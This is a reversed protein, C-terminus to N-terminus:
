VLAKVATVVVVSDAYESDRWDRIELGAEEIYRRIDEKAEHRLKETGLYIPSFVPAPNEILDIRKDTFDAKRKTAVRLTNV